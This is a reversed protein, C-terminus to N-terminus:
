AKRRRMAGLGALGIGLLALSAPEPVSTGNTNKEAVYGRAFGYIVGLNTPADNWAWIGSRLDYALFDENGANNPEGGWWDTFTFPTGDVWVWTGESASDTAGIWFHSRSALSTSLLSEVFTNEDAAGITVLDWGTGLAQAAARAAEWTVGESSVVQYEHGNVPWIVGANATAVLALGLFPTFLVPKMIGGPSTIFNPLVYNEELALGACL